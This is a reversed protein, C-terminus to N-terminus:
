NTPQPRSPHGYLRNCTQQAQLAGKAATRDIQEPLRSQTYMLPAERPKPRVAWRHVHGNGADPGTITTILEGCDPHATEAFRWEFWLDRTDEPCHGLIRIQEQLGLLQGHLTLHPWCSNPAAKRCAVEPSSSSDALATSSRKPAYLESGTLCWSWDRWVQETTEPDAISAM